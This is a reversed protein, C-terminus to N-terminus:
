SFYCVFFVLRNNNFDPYYFKITQIVPINEQLKELSTEITSDNAKFVSKVFGIDKAYYDKNTYDQGETTIELAKYKGSPTEVEVDIGSIYRKRNDNTQWSNGVLIPEKILIEPKKNERDIIDERFYFEGESAILRLEGNENELVQAATTGPNISRIQMRNDKIYDVYVDKEAYEMGKGEYKMRRDAAFPYYDKITLTPTNTPTPTTTNNTVPGKCSSVLLVCLLLLFLRKM